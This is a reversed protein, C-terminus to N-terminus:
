LQYTFLRCLSLFFLSGFATFMDILFIISFYMKHLFFNYMYMIDDKLLWSLTWDFAHFFSFIVVFDFSAESNWKLKHLPPGQNQTFQKYVVRGCCACCEFWFTFLWCKIYKKSSWLKHMRILNSFFPSRSWYIYMYQNLLKRQM